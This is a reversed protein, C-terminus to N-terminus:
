CVGGIQVVSDVGNVHTEIRGWHRGSVWENCVLVFGASKLYMAALKSNSFRRREITFKM